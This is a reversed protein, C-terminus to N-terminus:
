TAGVLPDHGTLRRYAMPIERQRAVGLKSRLVDAHARATRPSIGLALGVEEYTQGMAILCLVQTQRATLKIDRGVEAADVISTTPVPGPL